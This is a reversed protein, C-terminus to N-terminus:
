LLHSGMRKGCIFTTQTVTGVTEPLISYKENRMTQRREHVFLILFHHNVIKEGEVEIM